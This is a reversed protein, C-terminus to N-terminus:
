FFFFVALLFLMLRHCNRKITQRAREIGLKPYNTKQPLLHINTSIHGQGCCNVAKHHKLDDWLYFDFVFNSSTLVLRILAAFASALLYTEAVVYSLCHQSCPMSPDQQCAETPLLIFLADLPASHFTWPCLPSLGYYAQSYPELFDLSTPTALPLCSATWKPLLGQGTTPLM